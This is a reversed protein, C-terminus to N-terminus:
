QGNRELVTRCSRNLQARHSQLCSLVAMTDEGASRCYRRVDSRCAAREQATGQQGGQGTTSGPSRSGQALAATAAFASVALSVAFLMTARQYM